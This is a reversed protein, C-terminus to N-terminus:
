PKPAAAPIPPPLRRVPREGADSRDQRHPHAVAAMMDAAVDWGASNTEEYHRRDGWPRVMAARGSSPRARAGRPAGGAGVPGRGAGQLACRGRCRSLRDPGGAHLRACAGAGALKDAVCLVRYDSLPLIYGLEDNGLGVAWTWTGPLMRKVYGPITIQEPPTHDSPQEDAWREPTAKIGKPLGIVLEGPVEGPLFAFTLEGLQLLSVASRTHDGKRIPRGGSGRRRRTWRGPVDGGDQPGDGPLHLARGVQIRPRAPGDGSEGRRAQPLRHQVHAHLVTSPAGRPAVAGAAERGPAVGEVAVGLQEGVMIAKRFNRVLFDRGASGPPSPMPRCRTATALRHRPRQGGLGACRTALGHRRHRRQHLHGRRGSTTRALPGARGPLRGDPLSRRRRLAEGDWGLTTCAAAIRERPPSWNLTSEPHNAWNVLTAIVRGDAARAQLVGLTPDFVRLGSLDSGGFYHRGEAVRLTAPELRDVAEKVADRTQELFFRYWEPNVAFATDPGHHNHTAHVLVEVHRQREARCSRACWGGCNRPTPGSSWTSTPRRSRWSAIPGPVSCRSRACACTTASGTRTTRATASPSRARTSSPPSCARTTPMPTPRSASPRRTATAATSRRCCRGARRASAGAAHRAAASRRIPAPPSSVRVILLRPSAHPVDYASPGM